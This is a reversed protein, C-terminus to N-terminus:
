YISNDKPHLLPPIPIFGKKNKSNNLEQEGETNDNPGEENEEVDGYEIGKEVYTISDATLKCLTTNRFGTFLDLLIPIEIDALEGETRLAYYIEFVEELSLVRSHYGTDTIAVKILLFPNAELVGLQKLFSFISSMTAFRQKITNSKDKKTKKLYTEWKKALEFDINQLIPEIEEKLMLDELSAINNAYATITNKSWAQVEKLINFAQHLTTTGDIRDRIKNSTAPNSHNLFNQQEMTKEGKLLTSEETYQTKSKMLSGGFNITGIIPIFKKLIIFLFCFAGM